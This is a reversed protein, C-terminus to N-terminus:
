RVYGLSRLRDLMEQDLPAANPPRPALTRPGYSDVFRVGVGGAFAEGFVGTLPRGPLERSMPLGLAYLLTPMVDQRRAETRAGMRAAAGSLALLAKGRSAARGPDAVLAIVDGRGAGATLRSVVGDLFVYYRELAEVRSALVSPPLGGRSGLLEHQAIDLGPLYIARLRPWEPALRDALRAPLVDQEAARRLVLATAEGDAPFAAIIDQRAEDRWQPWARLLTPYLSAPAIEADLAGGRDLRLTARDSLVIGGSDPVPWTAWWNVVLTSLGADAAVEWFTKSRRQVSTTLAPRTLRLADTAAAIAAGVGSGAEVTGETGSVRRTEIGGVGHITAPQGTAFSTWTRAPDAADSAPLSAVAGALLHALAPTRGEGALRGLYDADLGDIAIVTLRLGTQTVPLVPAPARPATGAERPAAVVLLAAAAAFALTGLALRTARSRRSRGLIAWSAAEGRATVALTTIRVLHGLLLSVGVAVALVLWTWPSRYPTAGAPGVTRWWFVLYVLCGAAVLAGAAMALVRARAAAGPGEGVRSALAGLGLAAALSGATVAVGFFVGLYIALVFADRVGTVLGPIRVALATVTSPGLLLAALLGIRASSRWAVSVLGRSGRVPGLVFRDVGADLYGLERLRARLDDVSPKDSM